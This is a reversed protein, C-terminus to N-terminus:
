CKFVFAFLDFILNVGGLFFLVFCVCSICFLAQRVYMIRYSLNEINEFIHGLYTTELTNYHLENLMIM